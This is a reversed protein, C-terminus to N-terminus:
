LQHCKRNKVTPTKIAQNKIIREKLREKSYDEGTTKARTFRPNNKPKFEIHKEHMIEYAHKTMKKLFEEWDKSQVLILNFDAKGLLEKRLNSMKMGHSAILKISKRLPKTSSM